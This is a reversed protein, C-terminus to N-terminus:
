TRARALVEQAWDDPAEEAPGTRWKGSGPVVDLMDRLDLVRWAGGPPLGEASQGAVQFVLVRVRGERTGIAHPCFDRFHGDCVCTVRWRNEMAERLLGEIGNSM